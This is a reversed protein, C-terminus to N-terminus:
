ETKRFDWRAKTGRIDYHVFTDYIGVGGQKMKGDRILNLIIERLRETSMGEVIIDAAFCLVHQSNGSRGRKKEWWLPRYAINVEVPRNIHDRLVQLNDALEQVAPLLTDKDAEFSKWVKAQNKKNYFPATVFEELNFNKTLQQNRNM